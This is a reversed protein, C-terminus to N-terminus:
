QRYDHLLKHDEKQALQDHAAQIERSMERARTRILLELELQRIKELYLGEFMLVAQQEGVKGFVYKWKPLELEMLTTQIESPPKDKWDFESPPEL